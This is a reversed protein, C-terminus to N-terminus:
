QWVKEREYRDNKKVIKYINLRMLLNSISNLKGLREIRYEKNSSNNLIDLENYNDETVVKYIEGKKTIYTFSNSTNWSSVVTDVIVLVCDDKIKNVDYRLINTSTISFM